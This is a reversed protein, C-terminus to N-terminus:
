SHVVHKVTAYRACCDSGTGDSNRGDGFTGDRSSERMLVGRIVVLVAYLMCCWMGINSAYLAYHICQNV